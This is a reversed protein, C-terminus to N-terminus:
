KQWYLFLTDSSKRSPRGAGVALTPVGAASSYPFGVVVVVVQWRRKLRRHGTRMGALARSLAERASLLRLLLRAPVGPRRLHTSSTSRDRTTHGQRQRPSRYIRLEVLGDPAPAPAPAPAPLPLLYSEEGEISLKVVEREARKSRRLRRRCSRFVLVRWRRGDGM